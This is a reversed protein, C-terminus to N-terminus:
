PAAAAGIPITKGNVTLLADALKIATMLRGEQEVLWGHRLWDALQDRAAEAVKPEIDVRVDTEGERERLEDLARQRHWGKLLGLLLDKPLSLAGDAVLHELWAGQQALVEPTLGQASLALRGTAAGQPTAIELRELAVGPDTALLQPLHSAFIAAMATGAMSQAVQGGSLDQLAQQLSALEEVSLRSLSIVARSPAYEAENVRLADVRSDARMNLLAGDPVSEVAVSIGKALLDGDPFRVSMEGLRLSGEGAFLGGVWRSGASETRLDRVHVQTGGDVALDLAPLEFWVEGAAFGSSFRAEGRGEAAEIGTGSGGAAGPVRLHTVGSGDLELLTTLLLPPLEMGPISFDVRSDITAAVPLLRPARLCWPGHSIHSAIILRAEQGAPGEGVRSIPALDAIAQAGFWGREYHSELVGVGQAPLGALANEYLGRAQGGLVWPLAVVAAALVLAAVVFTKKM